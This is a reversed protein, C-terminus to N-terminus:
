HVTVLWFCRAIRAISFAAVALTQLPLSINIQHMKKPNGIINIIGLIYIRLVILVALKHKKHVVHQTQTNRARFERAHANYFTNTHLTIDIRAPGNHTTSHARIGVWVNAGVNACRRRRSM